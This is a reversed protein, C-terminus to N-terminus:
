DGMNTMTVGAVNGRTELADFLGETGTFLEVKIVVLLLDLLGDVAELMAMELYDAFRSKTDGAAKLYWM